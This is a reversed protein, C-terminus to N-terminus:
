HSRADSLLAQTHMANKWCKCNKNQETLGRHLPDRKVSYSVQGCLSMFYKKLICVSSYLFAPLCVHFMLSTPSFVLSFTARQWKKSWVYIVYSMREPRLSDILCRNWQTGSGRASPLVCVPSCCFCVSFARKHKMGVRVIARHCVGHNRRPESDRM